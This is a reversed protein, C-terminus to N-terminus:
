RSRSTPGPRKRAQLPPWHWCRAKEPYSSQASAGVVTILFAAALLKRTITM